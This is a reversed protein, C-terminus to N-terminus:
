QLTEDWIRGALPANTLERDSRLLLHGVHGRM